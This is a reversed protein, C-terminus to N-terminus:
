FDYVVAPLFDKAVAMTAASLSVFLALLRYSYIM